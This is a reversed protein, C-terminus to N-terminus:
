VVYDTQLTLEALQARTAPDFMKLSFEGEFNEAMKVPVSVVTGIQLLVMGTAANVVRGPKPEGVVKGQKDVAQVLVECSEPHDFM